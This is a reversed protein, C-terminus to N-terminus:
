AVSLVVNPQKDPEQTVFEWNSPTESTETQPGYIKWLIGRAVVLVFSM